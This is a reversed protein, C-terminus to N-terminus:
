PATGGGGRRMREVIATTSDGPLLADEGGDAGKVLVDPQVAEIVGAPTDEDFVVVADVASLAAVLEAREAAPQVPREPGKAARVFRDSNVAVILADGAARATQLHRVHGPHLLDFVGDTLVVRLGRRRLGAAMERAEELSLVRAVIPGAESV